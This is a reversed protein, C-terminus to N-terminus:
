KNFDALNIYASAVIEDTGKLDEYLTLIYVGTNSNEDDSVGYALVAYNTGSVVQKGLVTIPKYKIGKLKEQANNFIEQTKEDLKISDNVETYWAGVNDSNKYNIDENVYKTLDFNSSNTITVKGELDEYVIVIRYEKGEENSKCLYMYNTGAVVQKGLLAIPKLDTDLKNFVEDDLSKIKDEIKWSGTSGNKNNKKEGCGVTLLLCILLLCLVKRKM